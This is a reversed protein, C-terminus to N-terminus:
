EYLTKGATNQKLAAIATAFQQRLREVDAPPQDGASQNMVEAALQGSARRARFRKLLQAGAWWLVIAAILGVRAWLPELPTYGAFSFLPGAFWVFAGLLLLGIIALVVPSKLWRVM